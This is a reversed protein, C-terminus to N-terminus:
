KHQRCLLALNLVSRDQIIRFIGIHLLDNIKTFSHSWVCRDFWVAFQILYFFFDQTQLSPPKVKRTEYCSEVLLQM